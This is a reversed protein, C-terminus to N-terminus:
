GEVLVIRAGHTGDPGVLLAPRGGADIRKPAHGKQKLEAEAAELSEVRLVVSHLGQAGAEKRFEIEAPGIALATADTGERTVAFGFNKRVTDVAGAVDGTAINLAELDLTKM